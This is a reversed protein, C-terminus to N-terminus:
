QAGKGLVGAALLDQLSSYRSVRGRKYGMFLANPRLKPPTALADQIVPDPLPQEIEHLEVQRGEFLYGMSSPLGTNFLWVSGYRSPAGAFYITVPDPTGAVIGRIQALVSRAEEGSRYWLVNQYTVGLGWALVVLVPLAYARAPTPPRLDTATQWRGGVGAVLVYAGLLCVGFSPIYLWRLASLNVTPLLTLAVWLLCYIAPRGFRRALLVAVAMALLLILAKLANPLGLVLDPGSWIGVLLLVNSTAANLVGQPSWLSPGSYTTVVTGSHVLYYRMLTYAGALVLFPLHLVIRGRWYAPSRESGPPTFFFFDTLLLALPVSVGMEKGMIAGVAMVLALLYTGTAPRGKDRKELFDIFLLLAPFYFLGCVLDARGGIWSVTETHAPYVAFLAGAFIAVGWTKFLRLAILTVVVTTIVHFLISSLHWGFSSKGWLDYDIAWSTWNLPRYFARTPVTPDFFALVRDLGKPVIYNYDDGVWFNFPTTIYAVVALLAVSGLRLTASRALVGEAQGARRITSVDVM